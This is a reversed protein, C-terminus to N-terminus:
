AKPTSQFTYCSATIKPSFETAVCKFDFHVNFVINISIYKIYLVNKAANNYNEKCKLTLKLVKSVLRYKIKIKNKVISYTTFM